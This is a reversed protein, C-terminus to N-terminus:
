TKSLELNANKSSTPGLLPNPPLPTPSRPSPPGNRKHATLVYIKLMDELIFPFCSYILFLLCSLQSVPSLFSVPRNTRSPSSSTQDNQLNPQTKLSTTTTQSIRPSLPKTPYFYAGRNPCHRRSLSFSCKFVVKTSIDRSIQSTLLYLICFSLTYEFAKLHLTLLLIVLSIGGFVGLKRTPCGTPSPRSQNVKHLYLNWPFRYLERPSM